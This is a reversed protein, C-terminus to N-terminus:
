EANRVGCEANGTQMRERMMAMGRSLLGRLAGDTLELTRRITEYDAGGLYRMSLVRRYEEPLDELIAVARGCAEEQAAKEQPGPGGDPVEGKSEGGKPMGGGRKKRGEFKAADLTANRALTLLWAVFGGASDVAQVSGIGKWALVYTEQALDEAKQRDRVAAAIQAYVARATHQVIKEFATRDGKRARRVLAPLDVDAL